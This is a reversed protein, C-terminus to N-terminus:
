QKVKRDGNPKASFPQPPLGGLTIVTKGDSRTLGAAWAHKAGDKALFATVTIEEHAEEMAEYVSTDFGNRRLVNPPPLELAWGIIRGKDNKVDLYIWGHPNDPSVKTVTGTLTIPKQDDYEAQFSHHASMPIWACLLCAGLSFLLKLKKM